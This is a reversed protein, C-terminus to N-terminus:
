RPIIEHIERGKKVLIHGGEKRTNQFWKELALADRLTESMNKDKLLALKQLSAYAEDSLNINIRQAM